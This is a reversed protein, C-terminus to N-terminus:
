KHVKVRCQQQFIIPMVIKKTTELTKFRYYETVIPRLKVWHSSRIFSTFTSPLQCYLM